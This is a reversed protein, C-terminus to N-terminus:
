LIQCLFIEFEFLKLTWAAILPMGGRRQEKSVHSGAVLLRGDTLDAAPREIRQGIHQTVRVDVFVDFRVLAGPVSTAIARPGAEIEFHM